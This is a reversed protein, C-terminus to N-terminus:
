RWLILSALTTDILIEVSRINITWYLVSISLCPRVGLQALDRRDSAVLVIGAAHTKDGIDFALLRVVDDFLADLDEDVQRMAAGAAAIRFRAVAGANQNLNRVFEERAFAGFSPKVSGGGPSYPTPM